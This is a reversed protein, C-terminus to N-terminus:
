AGPRRLELMAMIADGVAFGSVGEGLEVVEGAIDTGLVAPLRIGFSLRMAHSRRIKFEVPNLGAARVRVLLEGAAPRPQARNEVFKVVEPGGCRDLEVARM